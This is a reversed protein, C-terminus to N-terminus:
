HRITGTISAETADNTKIFTFYYTHSTDLNYTNWNGTNIYRSYLGNPQLEAYFTTSTVKKNATKDWCDVTLSSQNTYSGALEVSFNWHLKGDSNPYFYYSTYLLYRWSGSVNYDSHSLDYLQTPPDGDRMQSEALTHAKSADFVVTEDSPANGPTPSADSSPSLAFSPETGIVALFLLLLVMSLCRRRKFFSTRM